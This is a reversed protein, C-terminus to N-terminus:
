GVHRLIRKLDGYRFTLLERWSGNIDHICRWRWKYLLALNFLELNKVGLGGGDKPLCVKIGLWGVFIAGRNLVGGVFFEESDQDNGSDCM